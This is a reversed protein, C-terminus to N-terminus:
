PPNNKHMFTLASSLLVALSPKAGWRRRRYIDEEGGMDESESESLCAASAHYGRRRCVLSSMEKNSFVIAM